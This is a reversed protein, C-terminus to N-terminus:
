KKSKYNMDISRLYERIHTLSRNLNAPFYVERLVVSCFHSSFLNKSIVMDRSIKYLDRYPIYRIYRRCLHYLDQTSRSHYRGCHAYGDEFYTACKKQYLNYILEALDSPRDEKKLFFHQKRRDLLGETMNCIKIESASLQYGMKKIKFIRGM